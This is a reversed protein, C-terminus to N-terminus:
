EPRPLLGALRDALQGLCVSLAHAVNAYGDESLPASFADGGVVDKGTRVDRVRWRAEISARQGRRVTIDVIDVAIRATTEAHSVGQGTMLLESRRRELDRALTQTVLNTLPAGWREHELAIVGDPSTNLVMEPRDVLSPLTVTLTAQMTPAARAASTDQPEANLVYFHDPHNTACAGLVCAFGAATLSSKL